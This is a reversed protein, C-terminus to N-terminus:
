IEDYHSPVPGEFTDLIKMDIVEPAETEPLMELKLNTFAM